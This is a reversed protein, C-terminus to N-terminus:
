KLYDSANIIILACSNNTAYFLLSESPPFFSFCFHDDDCRPAGQVPDICCLLYLLIVAAVNRTSQGTRQYFVYHFIIANECSTLWQLRAAAAAALQEINNVCMIIEYVFWKTTLTLASSPGTMHDHHLSILWGFPWANASSFFFTLALALM